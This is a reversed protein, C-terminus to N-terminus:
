AARSVRPAKVRTLYVPRKAGTLICQTIKWMNQAANLDRNRTKTVNERETCKSCHKLGRMVSGNQIVDSMRTECKHCCQTSLHEDVEMFEFARKKGVVTTGDEQVFKKLTEGKLTCVLIKHKSNTPVGGHRVCEHGKRGSSAFKADGVSLVLKQNPPVDCKRITHMYHRAIVSKKKRWLSMRWIAYKKGIVHHAKIADYHRLMVRTMDLFRELNTTKWTHESMEAYAESLEPNDIRHQTEWERNAIIKAKKQYSSATMRTSVWEDCSSKQASQFLNVRGDDFSVVHVPSSPAVSAGDMDESKTHSKAPFTYICVAISVGDTTISQVPGRTKPFKGIGLRQRFKKNKGKRRKRAEKSVNKWADGSLHFVDELTVSGKVNMNRQILDEIIRQDIYCFMRQVDNVPAISHLKMGHQRVDDFFESMCIHTQLLEPTPLRSCNDSISNIHKDALGALLREEKVYMEIDAPFPEKVVEDEDRWKSKFDGTEILRYMKTMYILVPISQSGSASAPDSVLVKRSVKNITRTSEILNFRTKVNHIIYKKFRDPFHFRVHTKFNTVIVRQMANLPQDWNTFSLEQISPYMPRLTPGYVKWFKQFEACPCVDSQNTIDSKFPLIIYKLVTQDMISSVFEKSSLKGLDSCYALFANLVRSGAAFILSYNMVYQDILDRLAQDEVISYLYRKVTSVGCCDMAKFDEESMKEALFAELVLQANKESRKEEPDNSLPRGVLSFLESRTFPKKSPPM